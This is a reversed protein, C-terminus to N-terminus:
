KSKKVKPQTDLLIKQMLTLKEDFLRNKEELIRNKEELAEKLKLAIEERIALESERERKNNEKCEHLEERLADMGEPTAAWPHIGGTLVDRISVDVLEWALRKFQPFQEDPQLWIRFTQLTNM